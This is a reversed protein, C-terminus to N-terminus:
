VVLSLFHAHFPLMSSSSPPNPTQLLNSVVTDVGLEEFEYNLSLGTELESFRAKSDGEKVIAM